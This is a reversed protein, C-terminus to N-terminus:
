PSPSASASASSSGAASASAVSASASSSGVASASAASASASAVGNPDSAMTLVVPAGEPAGSGSAPDTGVVTGPEEPGPRSRIAAVTYGSERLIGAAEELPRGSVDPVGGGATTPEETPTDGAGAPAHAATGTDDDSSRQADDAGRGDEDNSAVAGPKEQPPEPRDAAGAPRETAATNEGSLTPLFLALFLGALLVCVAAIAGRRRRRALSGFGARPAPSPDPIRAPLHEVVTGALQGREEAAISVPVAPLEEYRQVPRKRSRGSSLLLDEVMGTLNFMASLMLSQRALITRLAPSLAVEGTSPKAKLDGRLDELTEHLSNLRRDLENTDPGGERIQRRVSETGLGEKHLDRAERIRDFSDEPIRIRGGQRLHPIHYERLYRYLTPRPIGLLDSVDDVTYIAGELIKM